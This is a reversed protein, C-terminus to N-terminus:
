KSILMSAMNRGTLLGLIPGISIFLIIVPLPGTDMKEHVFENIIFISVSLFLSSIGWAIGCTLPWSGSNSVVKSLIFKHQFLGSLYGGATAGFITPILFSTGDGMFKINFLSLVVQIINLIVFAGGFGLASFLIWRGANPFHMKLIFWQMIGIGISIGIGIGAVELHISELPESILLAFVFGTLWGLTNFLTWKTIIFSRSPAPM